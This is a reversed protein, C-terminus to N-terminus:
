FSLNIPGNYSEYESLVKSLELENCFAIVPIDSLANIFLIQIYIKDAFHLDEHMIIIFENSNIKSKYKKYDSVNITIETTILNLVSKEIADLDVGLRSLIKCAIGNRYSLISLLIHETGVYSHNLNEAVIQSKYLFHSAKNLASLVSRSDNQKQIESLISDTTVGHQKLISAAVGTGERVLGYLLHDTYLYDAVFSPSAVSGSAISAAATIVQTARGTLKAFNELM